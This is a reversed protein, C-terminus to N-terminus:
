EAAIETLRVAFNDDLAVIEGRAVLTDNLYIEVPEGLARDLKLIAGSKLGLLEEVTMSVQGLNARLAVQVNRMVVSDLGVLPEGPESLPHPAATSTALEPRASM